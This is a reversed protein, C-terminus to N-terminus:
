TGPFFLVEADEEGDDKTAFAGMSGVPSRGVDVRKLVSTPIHHLQELLMAVGALHFTEGEITQVSRNLNPNITM